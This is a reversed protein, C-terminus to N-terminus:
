KNFIEKALAGAEALTKPRAKQTKVGVGGGDIVIASQKRGLVSSLYEKLIKKKEEETIERPQEVKANEVGEFVGETKESSAKLEGELQKIKQCRKTFESELAGYASLLAQVSKFKGLSVEGKEESEVKEQAEAGLTLTETQENKLEEM